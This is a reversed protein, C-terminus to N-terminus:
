NTAEVPKRQSRFVEKTDLLPVGMVNLERVATNAVQEGAVVQLRRLAGSLQKSFNGFVSMSPGFIRAQLDKRAFNCPEAYLRFLGVVKGPLNADCVEVEVVEPCGPASHM